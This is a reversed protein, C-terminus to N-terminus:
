QAIVPPLYELKNEFNNVMHVEVQSEGGEEAIAVIVYAMHKKETTIQYEAHKNLTGGEVM